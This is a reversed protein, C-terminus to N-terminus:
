CNDGGPERAVVPESLTKGPLPRCHTHRQCRPHHGDLTVDGFVGPRDLPGRGCVVLVALNDLDTRGPQHGVTVGQQHGAPLRRGDRPQEPPLPDGRLDLGVDLGALRHERGARPQDDGTGVRLVVTDVFEPQHVHGDLAVGEAALAVAELGGQVHLADVPRERGHEDASRGDALDARLDLYQCLPVPARDCDPLPRHDPRGKVGLQGTVRPNM